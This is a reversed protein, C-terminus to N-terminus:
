RPAQHPAPPRPTDRLQRYAAARATVFLGVGFAVSLLVVVLPLQLLYNWGNAVAGLGTIGRQRATAQLRWNDILVVIVWMLSTAIVGGLIGKLFIV